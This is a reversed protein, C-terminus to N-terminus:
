VLRGPIGGVGGLRDRCLAHEDAASAPGRLDGRGREGGPDNGGAGTGAPVPEAQVTEAAAPQETRDAPLVILHVSSSVTFPLTLRILLLFWLGYRLAPGAKQRFVARFGLLMLYIVSSYVGIELVHELINRAAASDPIM